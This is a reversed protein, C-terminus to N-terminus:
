NYGREQYYNVIGKVIGEVIQNQYREEQIKKRENPHSLFGCEILVGTIKAQNLLYFDGQKIEKEQQLQHNTVQQISYALEKSNVLHNSYFVHLGQVNESSYRNLHISIFLDNKENNIIFIRKEMDKKKRNILHDGALDNEDIRTMVVNAGKQSLAKKLKLAISLNLPAEEVGNVSAGMDKGGHGSDVVITIGDLVKMGQMAEVSYVMMGLCFLLIGIGIKKIM